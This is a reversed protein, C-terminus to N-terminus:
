TLPAGFFGSVRSSSSYGLELCVGAVQAGCRLLLDDVLNQVQLVGAIYAAQHCHETLPDAGTHVTQWFQKAISCALEAAQENSASAGM